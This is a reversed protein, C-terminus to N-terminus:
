KKLANKSRKKFVINVIHPNDTTEVREIREGDVFGNLEPSYYYNGKFPKMEHRRLTEIAKKVMKLTLFPKVVGM